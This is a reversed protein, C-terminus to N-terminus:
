EGARITATVGLSFGFQPGYQTPTRFTDGGPFLLASLRLETGLAFTPTIEFDLACATGLAPAVHSVSQSSEVRDIVAVMGADVGFALDTGGFDFPHLRAEGAAHWWTQSGSDPVVGGGAAVSGLAGISLTRSLRWRPALQVGAFEAGNSCGVVDGQAYCADGFSMGALAGLGVEIPRPADEASATAVSAFWAVTWAGLWTLSNRHLRM